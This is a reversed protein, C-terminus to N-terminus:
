QNKKEQNLQKTKFYYTKKLKNNTFIFCINIFQNKTKLEVFDFLIFIIIYKM